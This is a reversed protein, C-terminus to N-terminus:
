LILRIQANKYPTDVSRGSPKAHDRETAPFKLKYAIKFLNNERPDTRYGMKRREVGQELSLAPDKLPLPSLELTPPPLSWGLVVHRDSLGAHDRHESKASDLRDTGKAAKHDLAAPSFEDQLTNARHFWERTGEGQKLSPAPVEPVTGSSFQTASRLLPSALTSPPLSSPPTAVEQNPLEAHDHKTRTLKLKDTTKLSEDEGASAGHGRKRLGEGRELFLVPDETVPQLLSQPSYQSPAPAPLPAPLLPRSSTFHQNSFKARTREIRAFKLEDESKSLDDELKTIVSNPLDPNALAAEYRARAALRATKAQSVRELIEESVGSYTTRSAQSVTSSRSSTRSLNEGFVPYDQTLHRADDDLRPNNSRTYAM